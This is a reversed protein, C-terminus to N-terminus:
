RRGRPLLRLGNLPTKNSRKRCGAAYHNDDGCIFCHRCMDQGSEQCSSCLPKRLTKKNEPRQHERPPPPPPAKNSKMEARLSEMESKIENIAAMVPDPAAKVKTNSASVQSTQGSIKLNGKSQLKLKRGREDESSVAVNLQYILDEDIINTDILFPRLKARISEDQLGTEITRLFLKQVHDKDYKLANTDEDSSFLIKQRLDLARMLFAQPSEKPSQCMSALNQYMETTDKVGFHSRVVKRLRDLTLDSFTELYSRLVMGPSIARIVGDRVEEETFGQVIGAEIQRVLSTYNLKDKQNPEGIQGIIKFQRRLASTPGLYSLSSTSVTKKKLIEAELELKAKAEQLDKIKKEVSEFQQEIENGQSQDSTIPLEKEVSEGNELQVMEKCRGVLEELQKICQPDTEMKQIENEVFECILSVMQTKKAKWNTKEIGVREAMSRVVNMSAQCLSIQLQLQLDEIDAM